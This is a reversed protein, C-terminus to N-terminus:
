VVMENVTITGATYLNGQIAATNTSPPSPNNTSPPTTITTASGLSNGDLYLTTGGAQSVYYNVGTAGFPLTIAGVSIAQGATLTVTATPSIPTEGWPNTFTYGVTYTGAPFTTASSPTVASLAPATSPPVIDPVGPLSATPATIEVDAVGPVALIVYILQSLSLEENIDLQTFYEAIANSVPSQIASFAYGIAPLVSVTVNVAQTNATAVNALVGAAKYGDHFIGNQDIYGTLLNQVQQILASSAAGQGNYIYCYFQGPTYDLALAKVVQEIVNGTTDLVTAQLAGYEVALTDGRHLKNLTNAVTAQYQQLTEAERGPTVPEGSPNTVTVYQIPSVLQTITNAPVNTITGTVTAFAIVSQTQGPALTITSGTQWQLNTGPITAATGAPITVSQPSATSLTFQLLYSSGIAGQPQVALIQGLMNLVAANFNDVQAQELYAGLQATMDIISRIVTGVNYNTIAATSTM